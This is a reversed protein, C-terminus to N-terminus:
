QGSTLCGQQNLIGAGLSLGMGLGFYSVKARARHLFGTLSKKM